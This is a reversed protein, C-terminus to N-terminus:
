VTRGKTKLFEERAVIASDKDQFLGLYINKTDITVTAQWKGSSIQKIGVDKKGKLDKRPVRFVEAMSIGRLNDKRYNTNDSDNFAMSFGQDGILTKWLYTTKNNKTNVLKGKTNFRWKMSQIKLVDEEDFYIKKNQCKFFMGDKDRSISGNQKIEGYPVSRNDWLRRCMRQNLDKYQKFEELTIGLVKKRYDFRDQHTRCLSTKLLFVKNECGEVCCKEKEKKPNGYKDAMSFKNEM